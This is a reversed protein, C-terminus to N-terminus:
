RSAAWNTSAERPIDVDPKSGYRGYDYYGSTTLDVCNLVVGILNAGVMRLSSEAHVIQERPITRNKVVMVVGDVLPALIRSDALALMPPSDILVFDYRERASRILADMRPLTLLDSANSSAVGSCLIDLGSLSSPSVLSPWDDHGDLYNALGVNESIGFLHHLSPSRLDADVLLVRQGAQAISISLNTAITTKGEGPQTSTILLSRLSRDTASLLISTRLSRFAEVFDAEQPKYVDIRHWSEGSRRHGNNGISLAKMHGLLHRGNSNVGHFAPAAPILALAPLGLLMELDDTGNVTSDLREQFFALCVGLALGLFSAAGLNLAVRPKVPNVPPTASDVILINSAKLSASLGAEKLQQLLGDYLQKNTDVERKLINYQVSRKDILNMQDKQSTLAQRLFDERSVAALYENKIEDAARKREEQLAAEVQAIQKQIEQVRSYDSGYTVSLEAYQRKLDTLRVTLDQLMTNQFVGPLSGYDGAEVLRDLSEKEFRDSEAKTLEDQLEQLPQDAINEEIGKDTKVFLLGNRVAYAQLDDESKELKGKVSSLQQGLWESANQAAAWREDLHLQVYDEALTNAVQASLDPDHSDFRVAVLRTHNIPEITLRDQFHDLVRQGLDRNAFSEESSAGLGKGAHPFWRWSWWRRANFEPYSALGLQSIARRALTDSGLISYQTRLYDDSVGEIEYLERITPIDPNEQQIDLVAQARYTPKQKFTAIAGLVFVICFITLITARRKRVIQAFTRIDVIEDSEFGGSRETLAVIRGELKGTRKRVLGRGNNPPELQPREDM